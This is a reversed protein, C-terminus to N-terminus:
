FLNGHNCESVIGGSRGKERKTSKDLYIIIQRETCHKPNMQRVYM